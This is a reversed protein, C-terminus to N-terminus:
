EVAGTQPMSRPARSPQLLRARPVDEADREGEHAHAEDHPAPQLKVARAEDPVEEYEGGGDPPSRVDGEREREEPAM